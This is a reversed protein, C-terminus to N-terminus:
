LLFISALGLFIFFGMSDTSFTLLVSSGQAPDYGLRDLLLPVGVGVLAAVLLNLFMASAMVLGLRFNQYLIMTLIGMLGGWVLGNLSSVRIEKLFLYFVNSRSIRDLTLGRIILAVTQNGTNGGISAVIPMLTALAALQIITNEFMGIVRSAIFATVLNLGLWFWRNRASAWVSAFIDEEGQLGALKLVDEDSQKRLFDMVAEVTVRGVLRNREDVVPASLLNYREFAKAADTAKQYPSLVVPSNKMLEQVEMNQDASILREVPLVGLFVHRADVIYLSDLHPPLDKGRLEILVEDLKREMRTTVFHHSVLQGVSDDPYAISSVVWQQSLSDLSQYVEELVDRPISPALTTLDDISVQKLVAVLEDRPLSELIGKRVNDSLELLIAGGRLKWVQNWIRLRDEMPLSELVFAIDAPHRSALRNQMEALHQRYTLMELVEQKPGAQKTVLGEVMRQRELLSRVEEVFSDLNLEATNTQYTENM